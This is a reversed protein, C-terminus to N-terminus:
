LIFENWPKSSTIITMDSFNQSPITISTLTSPFNNHGIERVSEPISISSIKSYRFCSSGIKTLTNPLSISTIGNKSLCGDGLETIGYGISYSEEYNSSNSASCSTMIGTGHVYHSTSFITRNNYKYSTYKDYEDVIDIGCKKSYDSM